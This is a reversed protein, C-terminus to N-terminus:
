LLSLAEGMKDLLHYGVFSLTLLFLWTTQKLFHMRRVRPDDEARRVALAQTYRQLDELSRLEATTM